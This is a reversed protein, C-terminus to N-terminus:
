RGHGSAAARSQEAVLRTLMALADRHVDAPHAHVLSWDYRLVTLGHARLRLDNAHDRRRQAPSSHNAHGDLEVVLSQQPWYADCRVDHVHVNLLPLPLGRERCLAYFDEELRGNAYKTRPDYSEIAARLAVAGTRGNGCAALLSDVDLLQQFDLQGLARQLVRPSSTAALDVMTVPITTVPLSNHLERKLDRRGYVQIGRRTRTRRLTSM